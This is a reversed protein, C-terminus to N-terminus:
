PPAFNHAEVPLARAHHADDGRRQEEPDHDAGAKAARKAGAPGGAALMIKVVEKGARQGHDHEEGGDEGHHRHDLVAFLAEQERHQDRRHAAGHDHEAFHQASRRQRRQLTEDKQHERGREAYMERKALKPSVTSTIKRTANESVASPKM